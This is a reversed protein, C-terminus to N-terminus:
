ADRRLVLPLYTERWVPPPPPPPPPPTVPQVPIVGAHADSGCANATVLSVTYNGAPTYIHTATVGSGIGGDGFDWTYTIPLTGTASATFTVVQSVTPTLPEYTFWTATVPTCPPTELAFDVTTVTDTLVVVDTVTAPLYGPTTATVTYVGPSLTRTYYGSADTTSEFAAGRGNLASVTVGALPSGDGAATVHGDLDGVVLCDAMHAFTGVSARVFETFYGLDLNQLRDNTTHYFPNFDSLDEIGLIAPYGFNWFSAHDSQGMGNNIVQPQLNLNYTNVVETFLQALALTQTIAPTTYLDISPTSGSTNWGIMDLNLVGVINDGRASAQQAYVYSGLLGQEEGTWLAFRLTCGWRYQSLIDAAVLVATSGSANDDAGPALPGPPMDDLHASIIFIEDPNITGTLEGIVNAPMNLGWHHYSVQMGLDLMHEGVYETARQIPLGSYTNRTTITYPAGGVQVPHEGSLGGDYSGVQLSSVQNIMEQILPDTTIIPSVPALGPRALPLPDLALARLQVGAAALAQVQDADLRVLVQRGDDLLLSGYATWDPTAQGPMVYALYYHAAEVDPDLLLYTLGAQALAQLGDPNAGTLLYEGQDGYLRAYLPLGTSAFRSLDGPSALPVAVLAVPPSPSTIPGALAPITLSALLVLLSILLATRRYHTKM